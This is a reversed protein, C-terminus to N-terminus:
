RSLPLISRGESMALSIAVIIAIKKTAYQSRDNKAIIIAIDPLDPASHKELAGSDSSLALALAGARSLLVRALLAARDFM